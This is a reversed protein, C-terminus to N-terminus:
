VSDWSVNNNCDIGIVAFEISFNCGYNPQSYIEIEAVWIEENYSNCLWQAQIDRFSCGFAKYRLFVKHATYVPSGKIFILIKYSHLNYRSGIKKIEHYTYKVNFPPSYKKM